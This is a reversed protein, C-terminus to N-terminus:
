KTAFRKFRVFGYTDLFELQEKTMHEGLEFTPLHLMRNCAPARPSVDFTPNM